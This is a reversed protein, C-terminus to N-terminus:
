MSFFACCHLYDDHYRAAAWALEMKKCFTYCNPLTLTFDYRSYNAPSFAKKPAAQTIIYTM